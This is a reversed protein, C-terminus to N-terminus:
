GRISIHYEENNHIVVIALNHRVRCNQPSYGALSRQGHFKGPLFVPTPQWKRRWPIKGVLPKFGCRRCQCASEKGTLWWPLGHYGKRHGLFILNASVCQVTDEVQKWKYCGSTDFTVYKPFFVKKKKKKFCKVTNQPQLIKTGQGPLSVKGEATFACLGLWQAALSNGLNAKKANRKLTLPCFGCYSFPLGSWYEQRSLGTFLPAQHAVTWPPASLWVLGLM